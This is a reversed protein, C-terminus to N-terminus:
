ARKVTSRAIKTSLIAGYDSTVIYALLGYSPSPRSFPFSQREYPM